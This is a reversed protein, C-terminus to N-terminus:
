FITGISKGALDIVPTPLIGITDLYARRIFEADTCRESPPLNLERLKELIREDIFNRPKFEAFAEPKAPQTYPATVTAISLQSLYWATVTGEGNGVVRVVGNDDATAVSVTVDVFGREGPRFLSCEGDVGRLVVRDISAGKVEVCPMEAEAAARRNLDAIASTERFVTLQAEIAEVQALAAQAPPLWAADREDLTIENDNWDAFTRRQSRQIAM